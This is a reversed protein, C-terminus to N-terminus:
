IITPTIYQKPEEQHNCTAVNVFFFLINTLFHLSSILPLMCILLFAVELQVSNWDVWFASSIHGSERGDCVTTVDQWIVWYRRGLLICSIMFHQLRLRQITLNNGYVMSQNPKAQAKSSNSYLELLTPSQSVLNHERLVKDLCFWVTVQM